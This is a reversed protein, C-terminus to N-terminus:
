SSLQEARKQAADLEAQRAALDSSLQESRKQAADLEAQRAALDSSLQEARGSLEARGSEREASLQEVRKRSDELESGLQDARQKASDVEGQRLALEATLEEVKKSARDVDAQLEARTADLEKQRYSLESTLQESLRTLDTRASDLERARASLEGRTSELEERKAALEAALQEMRGSLEARGGELEQYRAQIAADRAQLETGKALVESTLQQIRETAKNWQANFDLRATDLETQKSALAFTLDEARQREKQLEAQVGQRQAELEGHRAQLDADRAQLEAGRAVLDATLQEIRQTSRRLESELEERQALLHTRATEVESRATELQAQIAADRAAVEQDRSALAARLQELEEGPAAAAAPAPAEGASQLKTRLHDREALAQALQLESRRSEELAAATRGELERIRQNALEQDFDDFLSITPEADASAKGGSLLDKMVQSPLPTLAATDLGAPRTGCIYLYYAPAANDALSEDLATAPEEVGTPTISYGVFATQAAVEVSQFSKRLAAVVEEDRPPKEAGPRSPDSLAVGAPRRVVLVLRGSSALQHKLAVLAKPESVVHPASHVIVLDYDGNRLQRYDAARFSLNDLQLDPDGTARGVAAEDPDIATVHLAGRELLFRASSGGTLAVADVELVRAGSLLPELFVYRPLVESDAGRTPPRAM